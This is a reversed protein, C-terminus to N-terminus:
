ILNIGDLSSTVMNAWANTFRQDLQKIFLFSKGYNPVGPDNTVLSTTDPAAFFRIISNNRVNGLYGCLWEGYAALGEAIWVSHNGRPSKHYELLHVFEHALTVNFENYTGYNLSFTYPHVNVRQSDQDGWFYGIVWPNSRSDVKETILVDVYFNLAGVNAPATLTNYDNNFHSIINGQNAYFLSEENYNDTNNTDVWIAYKPNSNVYVCKATVTVTNYTANDTVQFNRIDNLNPPTSSYLINVNDKTSPKFGCRFERINNLTNRNINNNENSLINPNSTQFNFSLSSTNLSNSKTEIILYGQNNFSINSTGSGGGGGGPSPIIVDGGGGRFCSIVIIFMVLSLVAVLLNIKNLNSLKKM